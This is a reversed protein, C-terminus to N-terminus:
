HSPTLIAENINLSKFITKQMESLKTIRIETHDSKGFSLVNLKIMKLEEVIDSFSLKKKEKKLLPFINKEMEHIVAYALMGVLFHGRTQAAKRHFIPRISLRDTKIDRFAHEVKQLKKYTERVEEKSLEEKKVTTEIVYKGDYKGLEEYKAANYEAKFEKETITIMYVQQMKYKSQANKARYKWGDIQKETLKVKLKKNKHGQKLREKNNECKAKESNFSTQIQALEFEFKTKMSLRTAKKEKELYPNSCLIYRTNGTEVEVLDKDFLSAQILGEKELGRIENATLPTIYQVGEKEAEEMKDLNYKIKMGRDGVLVIKKSEFEKKLKMLEEQVTQYDLINGEFVSIKLPFGENDTILGATVIKKGKKGDRNYGFRALENQAGEFYSSTVDYLYITDDSNEGDDSIRKKNYLYWKKEIASQLSDLEELTAYLDNPTLKNVDVELKKALIENRKIWNVIGLKSGQTIIKGIIMLVVLNVKEPFIAKVAKEIKLKKIIELVVFYQGYDISKEVCIDCLAINDSKGKLSNKLTSITINPLKSLNAIIRKKSKKGDWYSEALFSYSYEKGAKKRTNQIIYM